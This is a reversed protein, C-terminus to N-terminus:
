AITIGVATLIGSANSLSGTGGSGDIIRAPEKETGSFTLSYGSKDAMAAGRSITGGTVDCGRDLGAFFFNNNNDEVIIRPRGKALLAVKESTSTDITNLNLTLVQDYFTTGNDRSSTVTEEFTSGNLLEFKYGTSATFATLEGSLITYTAAADYNIIYVNRLGGLNTACQASRGATINCAM